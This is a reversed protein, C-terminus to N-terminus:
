PAKVKGSVYSYILPPFFSSSFTVNLQESRGVTRDVGPILDGTHFIAEHHSRLGHFIVM